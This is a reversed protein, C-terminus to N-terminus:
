SQTNLDDALFGAWAYGLQDTNEQWYLLRQCYYDHVASGAHGIAHAL